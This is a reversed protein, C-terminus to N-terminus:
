RAHRSPTLAADGIAGALASNKLRASPPKQRMLALAVYRATPRFGSPSFRQEVDRRWWTPKGSARTFVPVSKWSIACTTARQWYRDALDLLLATDRGGPATIPGEIEYVVGYDNASTRTIDLALHQTRLDDELVEPGVTRYGLSLLLRAKAAGSKHSPNLLYATLKETAIGRTLM